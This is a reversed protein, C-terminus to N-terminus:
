LAEISLKLYKDKKSYEQVMVHGEKAPFINTTISGDKHPVTRVVSKRTANYIVIDKIDDVIVYNSKTDANSVTYFSKTNIYSVPVYGPVFKSSNCPITQDFSLGGKANQKLLMADTVKCKQTGFFGLLFPSALLPSLVVSSAINGWRTRHILSSGMFYTNGEFDRFSGAYICYSRNDSFKGRGSISPSLSGDSWYSFYEKRDAKKPGNVAVTFVGCYPSKVIDKSKYFNNGKEPDIINGTLVPKGLVPDNGFSLVRLDNGQKDVLKYTESIVGDAFAYSNLQYGGQIKESDKRKSNWYVPRKKSLMYIDNGSTLMSLELSGDIKKKWVQEGALTYTVLNYGNEDYFLCAFGKGAINKLQVEKKLSADAIVKGKSTLNFDPTISAKMKSTNIINGDLGLFQMVIAHTADGAEKKYKRVNKFVEGSISSQLYSLCLVDQEFSVAQLELKEEKFNVTGIDNLNEDMISIKYNFSDESSKELQTFVLYGVLTEDQMIVKMKSSIDNSVEKFVKSQAHACFAALMACLVLLNSKM